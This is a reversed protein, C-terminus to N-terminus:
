IPKWHRTRSIGLLYAFDVPRTRFAYLDGRFTNKKSFSPEDIATSNCAEIMKGYNETEELVIFRGKLYELFENKLIVALWGRIRKAIAEKGVAGRTDFSASHEFVKLFTQGLVERREEESLKRKGVQELLCYLFEAYRGYFTSFAENRAEPEDKMSIIVLLDEDTEEITSLLRPETTDM